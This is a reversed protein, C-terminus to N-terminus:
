HELEYKWGARLMKLLVPDDFGYFGCSVFNHVELVAFAGTSLRCVDLTYAPPASKYERVCKEIFFEDVPYDLGQYRKVSLIKGHYIFTRYEAVIDDLRDSIMVTEDVDREPYFLDMTTTDFAKPMTAPKIIFQKQESKPMTAKIKKATQFSVTKCDRKTFPNTNLEDPINIASLSKGVMLKKFRNAFEISGVPVLSHFDIQDSRMRADMAASRMDAYIRNRGHIGFLFQSTSDPHMWKEFQCLEIVTLGEMTPLLTQEDLQILFQESM